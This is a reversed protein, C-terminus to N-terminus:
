NESRSKAPIPACAAGTKEKKTVNKYKQTMIYFHVFLFKPLPLILTIDAPNDGDTVPIHVVARHRLIQRLVNKHLRHLLERGDGGWVGGTMMVWFTGTWWVITM